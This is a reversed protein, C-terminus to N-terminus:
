KTMTTAPGSALRTATPTSPSLPHYPCLSQGAPVEYLKVALAEGRAREGVRAVGSRYGPPDTHDYEFETNFVNARSM